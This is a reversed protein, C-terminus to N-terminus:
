NSLDGNSRYGTTPRVDREKQQLYHVGWVIFTSVGISSLLFTKAARSMAKDHCIWKIPDRALQISPFHALKYALHVQRIKDRSKPCFSFNPWWWTTDLAFALMQYDKMGTSQLLLSRSDCLSDLNSLLIASERGLKVKGDNLCAMGCGNWPGSRLSSTRAKRSSGRGRCTANM